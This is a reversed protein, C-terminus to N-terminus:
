FLYYIGFSSWSDLEKDQVIDGSELPLKYTLPYSFNGMLLLNEGLSIELGPSFFIYNYDTYPQKTDNIRTIYHREGNLELSLRLIRTLPLVYGLNYAIYNGPDEAENYRNTFDGTWVYKIDGSIIGRELVSTFHFGGFYNNGGYQFPALKSGSISLYSFNEKRDSNGLRVGYSIGLDAYSDKSYFTHRFAITTGSYGDDKINEGVAGSNDITHLDTREGSIEVQWWDKIGYIAKLFSDSKRFIYKFEDGSEPKTPTPDINLNFRKIITHAWLAYHNEYVSFSGNTIIPKMPGIEQEYRQAFAILPLLFLLYLWLFKKFM